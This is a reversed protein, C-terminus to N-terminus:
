NTKIINILYIMLVIFYLPMFFLWKRTEYYGDLINIRGDLDRLCYLVINYDM